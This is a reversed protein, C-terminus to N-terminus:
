FGAIVLQLHIGDDQLDYYDPTDVNKLPIGWYLEFQPKITRTRTKWTAAWRLGLGVSSISKVPPTELDENWGRGYDVFPAVQLYDAWWVNQVLPIRAELSSLIGQDRVLQNERYGRVSYRGGVAIQEVPLLSDNTLQVDTRFILQINKPSFLKAWQFQGLWAFFRGDPTEGGHTTAGLADIGFSLQSRAAFVEEQTYHAWDQSLRLATM